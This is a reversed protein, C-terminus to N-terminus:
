TVNPGTALAEAGARNQGALLRECRSFSFSSLKAIRSVQTLMFTILQPRDTAQHQQHMTAEAGRRHWLMVAAQGATGDVAASLEAEDAQKTGGAAQLRFHCSHVVLM